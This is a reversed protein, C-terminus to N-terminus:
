RGRDVGGAAGLPGGAHVHGRSPERLGTRGPSPRLRSRDARGERALRDALLVEGVEMDIGVLLGRIETDADGACIRTDSYPNTLKETDYFPLMTRTSSTTSRALPPWCAISRSAARAPRSGHGREVCANYIDGLKVRCGEKKPRRIGRSDAAGNQGSLRLRQGEVYWRLDLEHGSSLGIRGSYPSKAQRHRSAMTCRFGDRASRAARQGGPRRRARRRAQRARQVPRPAATRPAARDDRRHRADARSRSDLVAGAIGEPECVLNLMHHNGYTFYVYASGPPGYMVATAREHDARRRMRAPTTAGLYAEVEVIRGGTEVGGATSVLM